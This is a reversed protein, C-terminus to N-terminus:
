VNRLGRGSRVDRVLKKTSASVHRVSATTDEFERAKDEPSLLNKLRENLVIVDEFANHGTRMRYVAYIGCGGLVLLGGLLVLWGYAMLAYGVVAIAGGGAVLGLGLKKMPTWVWVVVGIGLMLLGMIIGPQMMGATSQGAMGLAGTGGSTVRVTGDPSVTVSTKATKVEAPDETLGKSDARAKNEHTVTTSSGDANRQEIVTKDIANVNSGGSIAACGTLVTAALITILLLKFRM